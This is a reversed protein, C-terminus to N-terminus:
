IYIKRQIIDYDNEWGPLGTILEQHALRKANQFNKIKSLIYQQKEQERRLKESPTLKGKYKYLLILALIITLALFVGVNFMINYYKTKYERCQKLTEHLFQKVGPEVLLPKSSNDYFM